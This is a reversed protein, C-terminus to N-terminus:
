HENSHNDDRHTHNIQLVVALGAILYIVYISLGYQAFSFILTTVAWVLLAQPFYKAFGEMKALDNQQNNVNRMNIFISRLFFLYIIFGVFGLEIITENYLDHSKHVEM